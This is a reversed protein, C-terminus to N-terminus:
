WKVSVKLSVKGGLRSSENPISWLRVNVCITREPNVKNEIKHVKAWMCLTTFVLLSRTNARKPRSGITRKKMITTNTNSV